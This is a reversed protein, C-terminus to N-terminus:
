QVISPCFNYKLMKYLNLTSYSKIENAFRKNIKRIIERYEEVTEVEINIEYEWPGLTKALYSINPEMKCYEMFEIERQETLQQMKLLIKYHQQGLTKHNLMIIYGQIVGLKELKKIRSSISDPSINLENAIKVFSIRANKSIEVLIRYDIKDLKIKGPVSGFFMERESGGIKKVLYDRVFYHGRVISALEKDRIYKGFKNIFNQLLNSYEEINEAWTGFILGFEGDCKEIYVVNPNEVLWTEIENENEETTNHFRLFAKTVYRGLKSIDIITYYKAIIEKKELNLIRNRVAEKSLKLSKALATLSTRSNKDLKWLLIKDKKDLIKEM